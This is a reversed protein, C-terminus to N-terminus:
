TAERPSVPVGAVASCKSLDAVGRALCRARVRRQSDAVAAGVERTVAPCTWNYTLRGERHEHELDHAYLEIRCVDARNTEGKTMTLWTLVRFHSAM